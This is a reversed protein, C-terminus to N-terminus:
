LVITCFTNEGVHSAPAQVSSRSVAEKCALFDDIGSPSVEANARKLFVIGHMKKGSVKSGVECGM